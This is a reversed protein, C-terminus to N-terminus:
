IFSLFNSAKAPNSELVELVETRVLTSSCLGRSYLSISHPTKKMYFVDM